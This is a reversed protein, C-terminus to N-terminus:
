EDASQSLKEDGGNAPGGNAPGGNAQSKFPQHLAHHSRAIQSGPKKQTGIADLRRKIQPQM